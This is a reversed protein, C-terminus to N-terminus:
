PEEHLELTLALSLAAADTYGVHVLIYGIDEAHASELINELYFILLLSLPM